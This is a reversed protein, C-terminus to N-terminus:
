LDIKYPIQIKSVTTDMDTGGVTKTRDKPDTGIYIFGSVAAGPQSGWIEVTTRLTEGIKFNTSPIVAELAFIGTSEAGVGAQSLTETQVSVLDTESSGDWKRIKIIL